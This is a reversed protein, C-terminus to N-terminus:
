PSTMKPPGWQGGTASLWIVQKDSMCFYVSICNAITATLIIEGLIDEM